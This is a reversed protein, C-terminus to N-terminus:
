AGSSQKQTKYDRLYVYEGYSLNTKHKRNYERLEILTRDLPSLNKYNNNKNELKERKKREANQRMKLRNGEKACEECCYKYNKSDAPIKEGCNACFELRLRNSIKNCGCSKVVNNKIYSANVYCENGCDCKCLWYAKGSKDVYGFEVAVLKGSRMGKIDLRPMPM